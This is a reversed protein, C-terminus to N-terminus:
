GQEKRAELGVRCGPMQLRRGGLVRADAGWCVWAVAAVSQRPRVENNGCAQLWRRDCAVNM